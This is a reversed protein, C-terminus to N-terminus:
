MFRVESFITSENIKNMYEVVLIGEYKHWDHYIQLGINKIKNNVKKVAADIIDYSLNPDEDDYADMTGIHISTELYNYFDKIDYEYYENDFDILAVCKLDKFEINLMNQIRKLTSKCANEDKFLPIFYKININNEKIYEDFTGNFVEIADEESGTYKLLGNSSNCKTFPVKYITFHDSLFSKKNNPIIFTKNRYQIGYNIITYISIANIITSHAYKSKADNFDKGTIYLFKATQQNQEREMKNNKKKFRDFLGENIPQSQEKFMFSFEKFIDKM